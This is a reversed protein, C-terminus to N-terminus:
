GLRRRAPDVVAGPSRCPDLDCEPRNRVRRRAAADPVGALAHIRARAPGRVRVRDRRICLPAPPAALDALRRLPAAARIRRLLLEESAAGGGAERRADLVLVELGAKALYAATILSNHGGGAVVVDVTESM